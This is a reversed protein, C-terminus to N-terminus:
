VKSKLKNMVDVLLQDINNDPVFNVNLSKFIADEKSTDKQDAPTSNEVIDFIGYEEPIALYQNMYYLSGQSKTNRRRALYEIIFYMHIDFQENFRLLDDAVNSYDYTIWATNSHSTFLLKNPLKLSDFQPYDLDIRVRPNYKKFVFNCVDTTTSFHVAYDLVTMVHELQSVYNSFDKKIEVSAEIEHLFGNFGANKFYKTIFNKKQSTKDCDVFAINKAFEPINEINDNSFVYVKVNPDYKHITEALKIANQVCNSAHCDIAFIRNNM